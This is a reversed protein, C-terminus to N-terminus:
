LWKDIGQMVKKKDATTWNRKEKNGLELPNEFAIEFTINGNSRKEISYTPNVEKEILNEKVCNYLFGFILLLSIIILLIKIKTKM